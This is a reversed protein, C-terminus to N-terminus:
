HLALAVVDAAAHKCKDTLEELLEYIARLKVLQRADQEERFLRSMAARMVHDAQAELDDVEDCLALAQRPDDTSCLAAVAQQLKRTAQVGLDALRQADATVVTVHYLHLSQAADEALDLVDDLRNILGHIAARPFPPLLSRRLLALTEGVVGDARKEIAEIDRVRGNPDRVDALLQALAEVGEVCLDAQRGFLVFFRRDRPVLRRLVSRVPRRRDSRDPVFQSTM